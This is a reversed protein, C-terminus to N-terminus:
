HLFFVTVAVGRHTFDLPGTESNGVCGISGRPDNSLPYSTLKVYLWTRADHTAMLIMWKLGPLFCQIIGIAVGRGQREGLGEWPWGRGPYARIAHFVLMCRVQARPSVSIAAWLRMFLPRQVSEVRGSVRGVSVCVPRARVACGHDGVAGRAGQGGWHRVWTGDRAGVDSSGSSGAWSSASAHM